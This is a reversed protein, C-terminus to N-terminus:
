KNGRNEQEKCRTSRQKKTTQLGLITSNKKKMKNVFFLICGVDANIVGDDDNYSRKHRLLQNSHQGM